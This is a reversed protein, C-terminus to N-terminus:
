GTARQFPVVTSQEEFTVDKLPVVIVASMEGDLATINSVRAGTAFYEGVAVNLEGLHNRILRVNAM